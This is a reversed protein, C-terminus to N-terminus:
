NTKNIANQLALREKEAFFANQMSHFIKVYTAVYEKPDKVRGINKEVYLLALEQFPVINSSFNEGTGFM